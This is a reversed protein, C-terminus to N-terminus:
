RQPALTVSAQNVNQHLAALLRAQRLAVERRAQLARVGEDPADLGALPADIHNLEDFDRADHAQIRVMKEGFKEFLGASNASSYFILPGVFPGKRETKTLFLM